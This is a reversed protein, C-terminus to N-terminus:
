RLAERILSCQDSVGVHAFKLVASALVGVAMSSRVHSTVGRPWVDVLAVLFATGCCPLATLAFSRSLALDWVHAVLGFLFVLQLVAAVSVAILAWVVRAAPPSQKIMPIWAPMQFLCVLMVLLIAM